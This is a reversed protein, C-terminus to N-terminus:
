QKGKQTNAYMCTATTEHAAHSFGQTINAAIQLKFIADNAQEQTTIKGTGAVYDDIMKALGAGFRKLEMNTLNTTLGAKSLLNRINGLWADDILPLYEEVTQPNPRFM